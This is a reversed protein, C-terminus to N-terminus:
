FIIEVLESPELRFYSGRGQFFGHEAILHISLDAWKITKGTDLREVTTVTKNARFAHAWPCAIIGRSDDAWVRLNESVEVWDGLGPRAAETLEQMRKAIQRATYGLKQVQKADADLIEQLSRRDDGLFGRGSLRSSRLTEELKKTRPSKKMANREDFLGYLCPM